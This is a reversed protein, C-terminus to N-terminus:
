SGSILYCARNGSNSSRNMCIKVKSEKLGCEDRKRDTTCVCLCVCLGLPLSILWKHGNRGVSDKSDDSFSDCVCRCM